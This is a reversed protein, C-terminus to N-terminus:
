TVNGLWLRQQSEIADGFLRGNVVRTGLGCVAAVCVLGHHQACRSSQVKEKSTGKLHM